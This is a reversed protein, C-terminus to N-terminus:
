SFFKVLSLWTKQVTVRFFWTSCYFTSNFHKFSTVLSPCYINITILSKQCAILYNFIILYPLSQESYSYKCFLATFLTVSSRFAALFLCIYIVITKEPLLSSAKSKLRQKELNDVNVYFGQFRM